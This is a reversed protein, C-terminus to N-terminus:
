GLSALAEGMVALSSSYAASEIDLSSKSMLCHATRRCRNLVLLKLLHASVHHVHMRLMILRKDAHGAADAARALGAAITVCLLFRVSTNVAAIAPLRYPTYSKDSKFRTVLSYAVAAVSHDTRLDTLSEGLEISM